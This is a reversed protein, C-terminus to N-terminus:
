KLRLEYLIGQSSGALQALFAVPDKKDQLTVRARFENDQRYSKLLMYFLSMRFMPMETEILQVSGNLNDALRYIIDKAKGESITVGFRSTRRMREILDLQEGLDFYRVLGNAIAYDFSFHQFPMNFADAQVFHPVPNDGNVSPINAEQVMGFSSDLEVVYSDPIKISINRGLRGVGGGVVLIRPENIGDLVTEISKTLHQNPGDIPLRSFYRIVEPDTWLGETKEKFSLAQCETVAEDIYRQFQSM